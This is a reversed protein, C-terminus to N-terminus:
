RPIMSLIFDVILLPILGDIFAVMLLLILSAVWAIVPSNLGFIEARTVILQILTDGLGLGDSQGHCQDLTRLVRRLVSGCLGFSQTFADPEDTPM